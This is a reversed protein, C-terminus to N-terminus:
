QGGEDTTETSETSETEDESEESAPEAAAPAQVFALINMSVDMEPSRTGNLEFVTFSVDKVTLLRGPGAVMQEARYIFDSVDYFTGTFNVSLPLTLYGLGEAGAAQGPSVQIWDIGSRDALDQIQIILSPVEADIPVMKSLEILRAQNARGDKETQAAKALEAEAKAILADETEIDAHLEDIDARIPNILLFFGLLGVAVIVLTILVLKIRRSM